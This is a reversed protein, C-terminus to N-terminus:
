EKFYDKILKAARDTNFFNCTCQKGMEVAADEPTMNGKRVRELLHKVLPAGVFGHGCMTMFELIKPEALLSTKGHSEYSMNLTHPELGASECIEKVESFIGSIVVSYEIDQDVIEKVVKIVDEKNNYVANFQTPREVNKIEELTAHHHLGSDLKPTWGKLYRYTEKDGNITASTVCGVPNNSALISVFKRNMEADNTSPDNTFVIYDGELSERSGRRHLSHTM